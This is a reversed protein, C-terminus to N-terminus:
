HAESAAPTAAALAAAKAAAKKRGLGQIFAFNGPILFVGFMTAVFWPKHVLIEAEVTDPYLM